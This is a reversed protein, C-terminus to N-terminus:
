ASVGRHARQLHLLPPWLQTNLELGRSVVLALSFVAILALTYGFFKKHRKTSQLKTEVDEQALSLSTNTCSHHNKEVRSLFIKHLLHCLYWMLSIHTYTVFFYRIWHLLRVFRHFTNSIQKPITYKLSNYFKMFSAM